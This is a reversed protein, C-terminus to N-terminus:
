FVLATIATHKLVLDLFLFLPYLRLIKRLICLAFTVMLKRNVRQINLPISLFTAYMITVNHHEQSVTIAESIQKELIEM